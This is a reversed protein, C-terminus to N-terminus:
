KKFPDPVGLRRAEKQIHAKDAPSGHSRYWDHMANEVDEATNIPYSGDPRAHGSKALKKRENTSFKKAKVPATVKVPGGSPRAPMTSPMSPLKNTTPPSPMGKSMSPLSPMAASEMEFLEITQSLNPM